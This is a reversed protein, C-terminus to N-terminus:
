FFTAFVSDAVLLGKPTLKVREPTQAVLGETVLSEAHPFREFFGQGFRSEFGRLLMGDLQRLNLFLYEGCAQEQSLQETFETAKGQSLAEDMYKKPNRINSWRYGWNSACSFSHAGAGLGLYSQSQWYRMNHQSRYGPRSFNSIEYHEYGRGACAEQIQTYMAVETDEDIPQLVGKEKMQYFPTNEEYTLGYISIHEPRLAFVRELDCGLGAVTQGPVGFILDINLNSFGAARALEIARQAEEGTHLRGLTKLTAPEFSQIGFSLRRIGIDRYGQLLDLSVSAPDAELSIDLASAFACQASASTLFRALSAPQFLSPTGGGFYITELREDKWPAIKVYSRFEACLAEIYREEPWDKAAYANFDCYPCKSLCYPIHIYLSFSM